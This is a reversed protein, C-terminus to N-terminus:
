RSFPTFRISTHVDLAPNFSKIIWYDGKKVPFEVSAATVHNGSSISDVAATSMGAETIGKMGVLRGAIGNEKEGSYDLWAVVFGDNAARVAQTMPPTVIQDEGLHMQFLGVLFGWAIGILALIIALAEFIHILHRAAEGTREFKSAGSGTPVSETKM